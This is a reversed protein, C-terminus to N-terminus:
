RACWRSGTVVKAQLGNMSKMPAKTVIPVEFSLLGKMMMMMM